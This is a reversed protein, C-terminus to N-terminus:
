SLRIGYDNLIVSNVISLAFNYRWFTLQFRRKYFVSGIRLMFAIGCLISATIPHMWFLLTFALFGWSLWNFVFMRSFYVHLDVENEEILLRRFAFDQSSEALRQMEANNRTRGRFFKLTNYERINDTM